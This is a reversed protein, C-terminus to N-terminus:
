IEVPMGCESHLRYVCPWLWTHRTWKSRFFDMKVIEPLIELLRSATICVMM